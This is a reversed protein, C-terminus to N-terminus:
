EDEATPHKKTPVVGVVIISPVLRGNRVIRPLGAPGCVRMIADAQTEGPEMVILAPVRTRHVLRAAQEKLAELAAKIPDLSPM